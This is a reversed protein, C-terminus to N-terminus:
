PAAKVGRERTGKPNGPKLTESQYPYHYPKLAKVEGKCGLGKFEM